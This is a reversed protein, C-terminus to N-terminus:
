DFYRAGESLKIELGCSARDAITYMYTLDHLIDMTKCVTKQGFSLGKSPEDCKWDDIKALAYHFPNTLDAKSIDGSDSYDYCGGVIGEILNNLYVDDLNGLYYIGGHEKESGKICKQLINFGKGKGERPDTNNIFNAWLIHPPGTPIPVPITHKKEILLDTCKIDKFCIPSYNGAENVERKVDDVNKYAGANRECKEEKKTGLLGGLVSGGDEKDQKGTTDRFAYRSTDDKPDIGEVVPKYYCYLLLCVLVFCLLYKHKM